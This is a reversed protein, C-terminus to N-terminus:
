KFLLLFSIWWQLVRLRFVVSQNSRIIIISGNGFRWQFGSGCVRVGSGFSVSGFSQLVGFCINWQFDFSRYLVAGQPVESRLNVGTNIIFCFM